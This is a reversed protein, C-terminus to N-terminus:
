QKYWLRKQSICFEFLSLSPLSSQYCGWGKRPYLSSTDQTLQVEKSLSM